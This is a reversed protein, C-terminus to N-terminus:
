SLDDSMAMLQEDGLDVWGVLGEKSSVCPRYGGLLLFPQLKLFQARSEIIAESIAGESQFLRVM